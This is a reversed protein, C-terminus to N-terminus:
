CNAQFTYTMRDNELTAYAVRARQSGEGEVLWKGNQLVLKMQSRARWWEAVEGPLGIWLTGEARLYSLHKLLSKYINTEREGKLYDPHVIFSILGNKERILEIQLKWINISSEGLIHLLSYDQITTLPLEAIRGIFYPMITCCGGRQPELHAVNPFSMDYSAEIAELWEANRYMIASRFGRCGFERLHENIRGARRLFEEHDKFLHGDHNLDQIDVEFGRGRLEKLLERPVVYREEPVVQFSSKIEFSDDLTMLERCRGAGASTEVDHTMMACSQAGEPWFWIFPVSSIGKAKMCLILSNELITDVTRDVPWQPFVLSRWGRMAFRQIYKRVFVPMWPRLFYYISHRLTKLMRLSHLTDTKAMYCERRLNDVIETLDFPLRVVGRATEVDGSVDFIPGTPHAAPTGTHCRGYCLTGPGFQFFGEENSVEGKLEIEAFEEPCKYYDLLAQNQGSQNKVITILSNM